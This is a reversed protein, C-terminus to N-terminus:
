SKIEGRTLINAIRNAFKPFFRAALLSMIFSGYGGLFLFGALFLNRTGRSFKGLGVALGVLLPVQYGRPPLLSRWNQFSEYVNPFLTPHSAINSAALVAAAVGAAIVARKFITRAPKKTAFVQKVFDSTIAKYGLLAFGAVIAVDELNYTKPWPYTSIYDAVGGRFERSLANSAIGGLALTAGLRTVWSKTRILTTALLLSFAGLTNAENNTLHHSNIIYTPPRLARVAVQAWQALAVGVTAAAVPVKVRHYAGRVGPLVRRAVTSIREAIMM